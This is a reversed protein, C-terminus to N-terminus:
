GVAGVLGTQAVDGDLVEIGFHGVGLGVGAVGVLTGHLVLGAVDAGGDDGAGGAEADAVDGQLVDFEDVGAKGVRGVGAAAGGRGLQGGDGLVFAAIGFEGHPLFEGRPTEVQAVGVADGQLADGETQAMGVIAGGNHGVIGVEEGQHTGSGGRGKHGVIHAMEFLTAAAKGDTPLVGGCGRLGRGCGLRLVGQGLGEVAGREEAAFAVAGGEVGVGDLVGHVVNGSMPAAGEEELHAAVEGAADVQRRPHVDMQVFSGDKHPRGVGVVIVGVVLAARGEDEGRRRGGFGCCCVAGCAQAADFQGGGEVGQRDRGM